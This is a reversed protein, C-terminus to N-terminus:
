KVTKFSFAGENQWRDFIVKEVNHDWRKEVIRPLFKRASETKEVTTM